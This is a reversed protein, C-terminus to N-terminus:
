PWRAPGPARLPSALAGARRGSMNIQGRGTWYAGMLTPSFLSNTRWNLAGIPSPVMLMWALSGMKSM